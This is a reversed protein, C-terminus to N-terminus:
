VLIEEEVPPEGVLFTPPAALFTPQAVIFYAARSFNPHVLRFLLNEKNRVLIKWVGTPQAIYFIPLFLPCALIGFEQSSNGRRLNHYYSSPRFGTPIRM